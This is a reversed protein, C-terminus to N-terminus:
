TPFPPPPPPSFFVSPSPTLSAGFGVNIDLPVPALFVLDEADGATLDSLPSLLFVAVEGLILEGGFDLEM